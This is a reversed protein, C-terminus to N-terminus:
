CVCMQTYTYHENQTYKGWLALNLDACRGLDLSIGAVLKKFNLMIM